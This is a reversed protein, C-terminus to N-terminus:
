RLKSEMWLALKRKDIKGSDTFPLEDKQAFVIERPVKYASVDKRLRERCAAADLQAGPKLVVAATVAQGRKEDAM